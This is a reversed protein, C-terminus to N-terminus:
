RCFGASTVDKKPRIDILASSAPMVPLRTRRILATAAALDRKRTPLTQYGLRGRTFLILLLATVGFGISLGLYGYVVVGAWM